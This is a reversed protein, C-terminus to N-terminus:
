ENRSPQERKDRAGAGGASQLTFIFEVEGGAIGEVGDAADGRHERGGDISKEFTDQGDASSKHGDPGAMEVARQAVKL